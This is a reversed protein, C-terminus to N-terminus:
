DKVTVEPKYYTMTFSLNNGDPISSFDLYYGDTANQRLYGSQMASSKTNYETGNVILKFEKLANETEFDMDGIIVKRSNSEEETIKRTTTEVSNSKIFDNMLKTLQESSFSGTASADAYDLSNIENKETILNYLQKRKDDSGGKNTAKINAASPDLVAKAFEGSMGTGITYFKAEGDNNKFYHQQVQQKYYNATKITYYGYDGTTQTGNGFRNSVTPNNYTSAYYTPEGDTVLIILPIRSRTEGNKATYTTKSNNILMNAGAKIGSQTYTGGSIAKYSYNWNKLNTEIRDSYLPYELYESNSNATYRGLPLLTSSSDSFTVIGVKNESNSTLITNMASNVASVMNRGKNNDAMSGSVDLVFVVDLPATDTSETTVIQKETIEGKIDQNYTNTITKTDQNYTVDYNKVPDETVYYKIKEGTTLDYEDLGDFTVKQTAERNENTLTKTGVIEGNKSNKHLKITITPYKSNNPAGIWNKTVEVNIQKQAITNVITFNTNSTNTIVPDQYDDLKTAEEVRYIHEKGTTLDYRELKEFTYETNGNTLEHTKFPTTDNDRYLNITITPHTTGTPDIWKKTIKVNVDNVQKITNKFNYMKGNSDALKESTYHLNNDEAEEVRYKYEKGTKLDYRDLETFLYTTGNNQLKTSTLFKDNRYLNITVTPRTEATAAPGIWTKTGSISIKEQNITNTFDNGNKTATYGKVEDESVTYNYIHGDTLDYKDLNEFSYTTTGNQLIRSDVKEGDRLLNITIDPHVTDEPDVWTKTGEVKVTSDQEITNTFNNGDQKTTYGKVEDESVTYNYIHGDTLDYKDLNEFSYTTTGNQLIRSDVKEGDRLLNITIDPHVTDEPDVWTKTGEVKVTSDQEITNTFNNGDQKTTYGKVEDESVTYNYIHGDTLDYKDLNEFSYTTEGNTLTKSNIKRGDRLLNITIDPHVTDEPDVWTKTGEVKVTSDQEITNTFNNGEQKTTYGNVKDESVTYKYVHGDTLDYKDLNDFSYETKGNALKTEKIEKGDQLLNITIEPHVTGEPDVWTKKGEVKVSTDQNITNIFNNGEQKTTYGEVKDESVTYNYIHGDTLDYKELNEFSYTTTGNSLTRSDVKKGDRLLNITIDPHVTGEPDIWTKKGEVKVTSDQEITNTFNNGDQKTTYGKVEDESVTYNYIHGDTLDYKDLNEFSYTTTGNQLIRSDVKEGDRLLNITIDPHVTDEPDIWTKSGEVKISSDQNITNIYNDGDKRSTYGKVPEESTTYEYIHGDPAYKDLNTFKYIETGNALTRSDVKQGDRLLNITIDPHKIGKPAIWTKTGSVVRSNDQNITNTYDNVKKESSYGEVPEESTTYEYIHGDTLDYKDLNDFSYTTEGNTLTKSDIKTGDRLLNITIDPHKTGEPDVWTKTGEVKVTSDQEIRNTVDYGNIKSTYGKVTDESITYEYIHGDPAYKDLDDFSYTTTGNALKVEKIEKGDQLLNITIEPHEKGEPDIWIKNGNVSLKEQSIINTINYGEIKGKYGDVNEEDITYNYIHGDTLDYKDLNDFSYTTTGNQLIRSDIKEGDRLLNITIEPHETGEPDIWTKTGDVKITSDQNITNTFNNGDQVTTYGNVKEESVTYNYIHGDTLDYKDLNDFSYETEGNALKVEKIKKGDQLLNITIEPHETGEPDIWKKNGEVKVTSDQNITNIFNNGDQVTTYGNVKDESVTYNYIHGDTLDYRDLNDFLYETTGNALKTEKIKKGDQLLNITIEPHETGEPDVWTKTGEIKVSTDQNITNTFNNGDQVTTYGNVKEESVTYNYIHGDTLDYKDLNNFSYTTEGNTLTKSNVKEGDRLLNIIIDPHVTGEPDIWKKNGEVKVTSDQNITNIFNNGEQVTTYGNVKEESVTYNYIHGDTLDYKDLNDFSYETKGNALKTEKIKKGDQLLNITIEPHETGKPAIWKKNGDVSIIVQDIINTYNNGDKRSTYGEENDESTTYEYIHGDSLDYKDLHDFSYTTEGNALKTEKIEKGDQLLNITIEPHVTGEPDIWTKTGKISSYEKEVLDETPPVDKDDQKAEANRIKLTAVNNVMQVNETKDTFPQVKVKFTITRTENSNLKVEIGKNLETESYNKTDGTLSVKGEIKTGTPVTDKIIATGEGNGKNTVKLSYEIFDLEHLNESDKIEKGDKSIKKSTKETVINAVKTDVEDTPTNGIIAKNKISENTNGVIVDFSVETTKGAGVKVNSWTIKGDSISGGESISGEVLEANEPISDTIVTQGDAESDNKASIIYRIKEGVKADRDLLVENGDSSKSVIKAVKKTKIIPTKVEETTNGNVTAKNKIVDIKEDKVLVKFSVEITEKPKISEIKWEIKNDKNKGNNDISNEILTTGEPITDYAFINKAEIDSSNEVRIIYTITEGKQAATQNKDNNVFAIKSLKLDVKDIGTIPMEANVIIPSWGINTDESVLINETGPIINTQTYENNPTNTTGNGNTNANNNTGTGNQNNNTNINTGTNTGPNGTNDTNSTGRGNEVGSAPNPDANQNNNDNNENPGNEQENNEDTNESVANETNVNEIAATSNNNNRIYAITGVTAIIVLLILISIIAITKKSKYNIRIKM